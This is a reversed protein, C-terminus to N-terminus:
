IEEDNSLSRLNLYNKVGVIQNTNHAFSFFIPTKKENIMTKHIVEFEFLVSSFNPIMCNEGKNLSQQLYIPKGRELLYLSLNDNADFDLKLHWSRRAANFCKTFVTCGYKSSQPGERGQQAVKQQRQERLQQMTVVYTHCPVRISANTKECLPEGNGDLAM